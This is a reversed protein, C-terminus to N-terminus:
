CENQTPDHRTKLPLDDIMHGCHCQSLHPVIPHPMGFCICFTILFQAFPLRFSPTSMHALLWAGAVPSACSRFHARVVDLPFDVLLSTFKQKHLQDMLFYQM